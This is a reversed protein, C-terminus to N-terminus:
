SLNRNVLFRTSYEKKVNCGGCTTKGWDLAFRQEAQFFTSSRAIAATETEGLLNTLRPCALRSVHM